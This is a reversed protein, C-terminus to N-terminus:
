WKGNRKKHLCIEAQCILRLCPPSTKDGNQTSGNVPGRPCVAAWAGQAARNVGSMKRPDVQPRCRSSSCCGRLMVVKSWTMAVWWDSHTEKLSSGSNGVGKSPLDPEQDNVHGLGLLPFFFFDNPGKGCTHMSEKLRYGSSSIKEARPTM